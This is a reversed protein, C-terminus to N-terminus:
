SNSEVGGPFAHSMHTVSVSLIIRIINSIHIILMQGGEKKLETFLDKEM